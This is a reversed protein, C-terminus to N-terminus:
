VAKEANAKCTPCAVVPEDHGYDSHENELGAEELCQSCLELGLADKDSPDLSRGCKTHCGITLCIQGVARMLRRPNNATGLCALRIVAENDNIGYRHCVAWAELLEDLNPRTLNITTSRTM